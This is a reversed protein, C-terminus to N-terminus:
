GSRGLDDFGALVRPVSLVVSAGHDVDGVDVLRVDVGRAALVREAHVANAIPVDRDGGAAYLDVPVDPTWDLTGDAEALARALAGTPRRVHELFAPTFLEEPLAVPLGAFVEEDTHHGDLLTEVVADYPALFAESPAGYLGYVRHWAVFLYALYQPAANIEGALAARLTGSFDYPGSIPALAGLGLGPVIGEQLARGLAMTVRGGKSFGSVLVREDLGRGGEEAFARAALLADVSADVASATHNYPHFGPSVGLGLYDPAVTANGAVAFAFAVMRDPSEEGVSAADGRYVMTGHLWAVPRPSPDDNAPLVVLGSATTPRLAPDVTGYVIRTAEVGFRVRSADLGIAELMGAVEAADLDAVPTASVLQGRAAARGVELGVPGPTGSGGSALRASRGSVRGPAAVASSTATAALAGAALSAKLLGRRSIRDSTYRYRPM